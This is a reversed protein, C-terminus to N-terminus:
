VAITLMVSGDELNEEALLEMSSNKSVNTKIKDCIMTKIKQSCEEQQKSEITQLVNLVDEATTSMQLKLSM